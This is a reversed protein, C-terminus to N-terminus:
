KVAWICDVCAFASKNVLSHSLFFIRMECICEIFPRFIAKCVSVVVSAFSYGLSVFFFSILISDTNSTGSFLLCYWYIKTHIISQMIMQYFWKCEIWECEGCLKKGTWKPTVTRFEVTENSCCNDMNSTFTWWTPQVSVDLQKM